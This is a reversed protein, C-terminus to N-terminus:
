ALFFEASDIGYADAAVAQAIRYPEGTPTAPEMLLDITRPYREFSKDAALVIMVRPRLRRVQNQQVVVAVEGTNLEVLSGVPYLGLCQVLQDVLADRFKVGRVGVVQELAKQTSLAGRYSRARTMACYCDILGAMEAHLRNTEGSIRRPYGSGDYREHHGAVIHLVEPSFGPNGTLAQLSSAVHTQVLAYEEATLAGAKDLIEPPIRTKGVDQMLGALGFQEVTKAPLGLFRAFVMLHVSVDIAHDYSYQHSSKLRSLWVMAEANREVAEAMEHVLPGVERLELKEGRALTQQVSKLTQQVDEVIPASYLMEAELASQGTAASVVPPRQYRSSARGQRLMQCIAPFDDPQADEVRVFATRPVAPRKDHGVAARAHHEGLSRSRDIVVTQCYQQLQAIQEEDDILFGQLLFPTGLWPRDLDAVFM